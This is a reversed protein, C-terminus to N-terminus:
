MKAVVRQVPKLGVRRSGAGRRTRNKRISTSIRRQMGFEGTRPHKRLVAAVPQDSEFSLVTEDGGAPPQGLCGDGAVPDPHVLAARDRVDELAGARDDPARGALAAPRHRRVHQRRVDVQREDGLRQGVGLRAPELAERRQGRGAAHRDRQHQGLGVQVLGAVLGGRRQGPPHAHGVGDRHAGHGALAHAHQAGQEGRARGGHQEAGGAGALRREDVRQEALLPHLRALHARGVPAPAVGRDGALQEGQWPPADSISVGPMRTAPRHSPM